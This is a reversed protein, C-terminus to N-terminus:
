TLIVRHESISALVRADSAHIVALQYEGPEVGAFSMDVRFGAAHTFQPLVKRFRFAVDDRQTREPLPAFYPFRGRPSRLALFTAGPLVPVGPTFAWGDIPLSEGLRLRIRGTPRAGRVNEICIRGGLDFNRNELAAPPKATFTAPLPALRPTAREGEALARELEALHRQRLEPALPEASRLAQLSERWNGAGTLARQTAELYAYGNVQDPELHAGEGWENWANIFVLREQPPRYAELSRIAARLWIEYDLPNADKFLFAHPGRRPTNDWATMVGRYLRYEPYRRAISAQVFEPYSFIQGAFTPDLGAITSEIRRSHWPSPPFEVAADFDHTRPDLFADHSQVAVLHLGPLGAELAAQRWLRSTTLTDTMRGVRYVLLLPKDDVRIYRPDKLIPLVDHIFAAYAAPTDVQSILAEHEAGDWRRTWSENAWCICFPFDPKGTELVEQLPRELLKKGNFWYYYYCFGEIGYRCALAAQQERIEPLRLDYYGLEAPQEPQVHGPFLPRARAVSTWETFGKGWWADNEPIPHFQPLYYAIARVRPEASGFASMGQRSNGSKERAM